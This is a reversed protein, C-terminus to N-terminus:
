SGASLIWTELRPEATGVTAGTELDVIEFRTGDGRAAYLHRGSVQSFDASERVLSFRLEGDPGFVILTQEDTGETWASALLAGGRFTVWSPEDSLRRVSWDSPDILALGAPTVDVSDGDMTYHSGSVAVLGSPLWVANRDPGDLMGKAHAPPELWDRLRGLLSVPETLDHYRVEMTRLDVEAVRNGAPVVLARTGSPDVALAPVSQRTAPDEANGQEWGAEVEALGASRSRKGDTVVLRAPGIGASPALLFVLEGGAASSYLTIGELDRVSLVERTVPDLAAVHSTSGGLSALLLDPDAWHLREIWSDMAVEITGLARMGEVDVLAVAANEDGTVAFTRGDPSLAGTRFWM